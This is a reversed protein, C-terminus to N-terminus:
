SGQFGDREPLYCIEGTEGTVVQKMRKEKKHRGKGHAVTPCPDLNAYVCGWRKVKHGAANRLELFEGKEDSNGAPM